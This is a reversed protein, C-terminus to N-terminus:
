GIIETWGYRTKKIFVCLRLLAFDKISLFCLVRLVLMFGRHAKGRRFIIRQAEADRRETFELNISYHKKNM